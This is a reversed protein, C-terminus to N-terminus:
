SRIRKEEYFRATDLAGIAAILSARVLGLIEEPVQAAAAEEPTKPWHHKFVAQLVAIGGVNVDRQSEPMGLLLQNIPDLPTM